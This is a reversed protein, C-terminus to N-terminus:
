RCCYGSAARTLVDSVSFLNIAAVVAVFQHLLLLLLGAVSPVRSMSYKRVQTEWWWDATHMESYLRQGSGDYERVPGYIISERYAPQALLYEVCHVIDRYFFVSTRGDHTLAGENWAILDQYPDLAKIYQDLKYASRFCPTSLRSLGAAFYEDIRSRPVKSTIFWKALKFDDLTHFPHWPDNLLGVEFRLNPDVNRLPRGANEYEDVRSGPKSSAAAPNEEGDSANEESDSLVSEHDSEYDSENVGPPYVVVDLEESDTHQEDSDASPSHRSVRLTSKYLSEYLEAHRSRLHKEYAGAQLYQRRCFLCKTRKTSM